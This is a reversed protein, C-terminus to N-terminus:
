FRAVIKWEKNIKELYKVVEQEDSHEKGGFTGELYEDYIVFAINGKLHIDHNAAIFKKVVNKGPLLGGKGLPHYFGAPQTEIGTGPPIRRWM